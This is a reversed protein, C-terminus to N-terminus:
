LYRSSADVKIRPNQISTDPFDKSRLNYLQEAISLFKEHTIIIYDAGNATNRLDSIHSDKELSDPQLFYNEATCFFETTDEVDYGFLTSGYSDHTINANKIIEGYRPIFIKMDDEQWRFVNYRTKGIIDQLAELFLITGM